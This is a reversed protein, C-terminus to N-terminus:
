LHNLHFFLCVFLSIKSWCYGLDLRIKVFSEYFRGPPIWLHSLNFYCFCVFLCVLLCVFWYVFLCNKIVAFDFWIRVLCEPFRGTCIVLHNLYYVFFLFLCVFLCVIKHISLIDALDLWIKILSKPFIGTPIGLHTFVFLRFLEKSEAM